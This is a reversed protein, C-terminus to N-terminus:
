VHVILFATASPESNIKVIQSDQVWIKVCSNKSKVEMQYTAVAAPISGKEKAEYLLSSYWPM